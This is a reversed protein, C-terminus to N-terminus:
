VFYCLISVNTPFALGRMDHDPQFRVMPLGILWLISSLAKRRNSEAQTTPFPLNRRVLGGLCTQLRDQKHARRYSGLHHSGLTLRDSTHEDEM